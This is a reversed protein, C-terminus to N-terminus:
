LAIIILSKVLFISQLIVAETTDDINTQSPLIGKNFGLIFIGVYSCKKLLEDIVHLPLALDSFPKKVVSEGKETTKQSCNTNYESM